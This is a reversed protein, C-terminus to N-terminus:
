EHDAVGSPLQLPPNIPQLRDRCLNWTGNSSCGALALVVALLWGAHGVHEGKWVQM